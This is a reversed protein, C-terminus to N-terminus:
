AIFLLLPVNAASVTCCGSYTFRPPLPCIGRKEDKEGRGEREDIGMEKWQKWAKGKM